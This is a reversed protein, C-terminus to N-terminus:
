NMSGESDDLNSYFTLPDGIEKITETRISRTRKHHITIGVGIAAFVLFVTFVIGVLFLFSHM